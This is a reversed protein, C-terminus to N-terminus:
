FCTLIYIGETKDETQRYFMTKQSKRLFFSFSLFIDMHNFNFAGGQVVNSLVVFLKGENKFLSLSNLSNDFATSNTLRIMDM